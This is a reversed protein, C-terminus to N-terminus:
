VSLGADFFVDEMSLWASIGKYVFRRVSDAEIRRWKVLNGILLIDCVLKRCMDIFFGSSVNGLLSILQSVARVCFQHARFVADSVFEAYARDM